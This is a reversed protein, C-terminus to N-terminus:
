RIKKCIKCLRSEPDIKLLDLSIKKKCKECIGYKGKEIKLLASDIDAVRKKFDQAVSLQSGYKESENTEEELSDVDSGFEPIKMLKKIRSVLNNKEEALLKKFKEFNKQGWM